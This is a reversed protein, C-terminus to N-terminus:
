TTNADSTYADDMLTIIAAANTKDKAYLVAYLRVVELYTLLTAATETTILQFIKPEVTTTYNTTSNTTDASQIENLYSLLVNLKAETTIGNVNTEGSSIMNYMVASAWTQKWKLLIAASDTTVSKGIEAYLASLLVDRRTEGGKASSAAINSFLTRVKTIDAASISAHTSLFNFIKYDEECIYAAGVKRCCFGPNTTVGTALNNYYTNTTDAASDNYVYAYGSVVCHACSLTPKYATTLM